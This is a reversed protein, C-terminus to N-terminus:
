SGYRKHAEDIPLVERVRVENAEDHITYFATYSRGIHLRYM